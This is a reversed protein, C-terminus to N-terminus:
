REEVIRKVLDELDTLQIDQQPVIPILQKLKKICLM